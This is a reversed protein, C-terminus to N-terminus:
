IHLKDFGLSSCNAWLLHFTNISVQLSSLYIVKNEVTTSLLCCHMTYLHLVKFLTYLNEPSTDFTPPRMRVNLWLLQKLEAVSTLSVSTSMNCTLIGATNCERYTMPIHTITPKWYLNFCKKLNWNSMKYWKFIYLLLQIPDSLIQEYIETLLIGNM